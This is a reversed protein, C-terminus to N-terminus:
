LRLIKGQAVRRTFRGLPLGKAFDLHALPSGEFEILYMLRQPLGKTCALASKGQHVERDFGVTIPVGHFTSKGQTFQDVEPAPLVVTKPVCTGTHKANLM